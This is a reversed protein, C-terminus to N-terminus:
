LSSHKRKIDALYASASSAESPRSHHKLYSVRRELMFLYQNFLEREKPRLQQGVLLEPLEFRPLPFAKYKTDNTLRMLLGEPHRQLGNFMVHQFANGLAYTTRLQVSERALTRQLDRYQEQALRINYYDGREAKYAVEAMANLKEQCAVALEPYVRELDRKLMPSALHGMDVVVIDPRFQGVNQLYIMPGSFGEWDGSFIISGQEASLAVDRAFASTVNYESMDNRNFNRTLASVPILFLSILILLAIPIKLRSAWLGIHAAAVAAWLSLLLIILLYYVQIDHIPYGLNYVMQALFIPVTMWLVRSGERVLIILGLLALVPLGLTADAFLQESAFRYLEDLSFGDRGWIGQYQRASIHMMLRHWTEPYDWNIQPNMRSRIPLYAYLLLPLPMALIAYFWNHLSTLGRKRRDLSIFVLTVLFTLGLLASTLHHVLSLGFLFGVLVLQKESSSHERSVVTLCATLFVMVIAGHLAYVEVVVAQSWPTAAFAFLFSGSLSGFVALLRPWGAPSNRRVIIWVARFLLGTTAASAVASLLGVRFIISGVPLLSFIRGLLIFFPYGSPHAIGLQAAAATLEGSDVFTVERALTRLYVAMPVVVALVQAFSVVWKGKEVAGQKVKAV